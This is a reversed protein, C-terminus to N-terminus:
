QLPSAIHHKNAIDHQCRKLPPSFFNETIFCVYYLLVDLLSAQEGIKV